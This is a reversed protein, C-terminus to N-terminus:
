THDGLGNSCDCCECTKPGTRKCHHYTVGTTGTWHRHACVDTKMMGHLTPHSMDRGSCRMMPHAVRVHNFADIRCTIDKAVHYGPRCDCKAEATSDARRAAAHSFDWYYGARNFHAHGGWDKEDGGKRWLHSHGFGKLEKAPDMKAPAGIHSHPCVNDKCLQAHAAGALLVAVCFRSM